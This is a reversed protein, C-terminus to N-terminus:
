KNIVNYKKYEDYSMPYRELNDLVVKEGVDVVAVQHYMANYSSTRLKSCGSTCVRVWVNWPTAKYGRDSLAQIYAKTHSVCATDGEGATNAERFKQGDLSDDVSDKIAQLEDMVGAHACSTVILVTLLVAAFAIWVVVAPSNSPPEECSSDNDEM